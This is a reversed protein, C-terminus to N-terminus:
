CEKAQHPANVCVKILFAMEGLSGVLQVNYSNKREERREKKLQAEKCSYM